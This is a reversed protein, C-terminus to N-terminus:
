IEAPKQKGALQTYLLARAMKWDRKATEASVKLVQQPDGALLQNWALVERASTMSSQGTLRIRRFGGTATRGIDVPQCEACLM